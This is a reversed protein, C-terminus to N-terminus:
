RVLWLIAGLLWLLNTAMCSVMWANERRHAKFLRKEHEIYPIQAINDQHLKCGNCTKKM